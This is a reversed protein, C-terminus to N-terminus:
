SGGHCDCRRGLLGKQELRRMVAAVTRNFDRFEEVMRALNKDHNAWDVGGEVM